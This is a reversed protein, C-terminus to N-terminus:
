DNQENELVLDEYNASTFHCTEAQNPIPKVLKVGLICCCHKATYTHIKELIDDEVWERVFHRRADIHKTKQSNCHNNALYIAGVNDCKIIIPYQLQIGFAEL